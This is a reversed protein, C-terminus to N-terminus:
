KPALVMLMQRGESRPELETKAIEATEEKVRKLLDFGIENHAAERGRFRITIKVKDGSELFKEISKRKILYDHEGINPRMKIEKIQINKQKKRADHAKKQAAYKFKGYDLIKCVPPTANPSIEVLDLGASRAASLGEELSVIGVMEGNQDVLRISSATIDRNIRTNDVQVM